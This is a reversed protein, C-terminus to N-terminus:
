DHLCQEGEVLGKVDDVLVRVDDVLRHVVGLTQAVALRVEDQTLRDLRQLADEIERGGLLKNRVKGTACYAAPSTYIVACKSFRGEKVKKTALALVSLLQVMIRVILETMLPSPPITTYIELRKLFNGLCEFLEILAYYSSTERSATQCSM